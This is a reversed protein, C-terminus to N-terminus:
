FAVGARAAEVTSAPDLPAPPAGDLVRYLDWDALVIKLYARTERYPISEVWADLPMGSRARAWEAAPAPGANYAALAVAPDGFRAFLLSLYHAGFTLNVEPDGLRGGLAPTVGLVTALREATAPRLQLLGEAGAGSRVWPRFSSERRMVALLFAPDVGFARARDPLIDAYPRPHSWRLTRRTRALHDRAIRFPLEADGAFAALQAVAAAAPRVRASRALDSLEALADPQLGLGLLEVAVALRAAAVPDQVDPIPKPDLPPARPAPAGTADLRARALLAYWGDGGLQVASLYLRRRTSADKALRGRWYAAADAYSTRQLRAMSRAAADLRGLRFRAWAAFWLADDARRSRPHMRAFRDLADAGRAFEGADYFLWAALYAAEDGLDRQRWEPLGPVPARLAAVEEYLRSADATRGARAASRARVLLAGRRVSEDRSATLPAAVADADAHRGLAALAGARLVAARGPDGPPEADLAAGIAALSLEPWGTALLREARALEEGGTGPPVPGGSRRWADLADGAARGEPREPAEIWLARYTAEARADDGLARLGRALALRAAADDPTERLLRELAPVAEAALGAGLLAQAEALRARRAVALDGAATVDAYLRAARPLDGAAVLAAARASSLHARAPTTAGGLAAELADAAEAPTGQAALALGLAASARSAAQGHPRAALARRAASEAKRADGRAQTQAAEGIGSLWDCLPEQSAARASAVSLLFAAAAIARAYGAVGGHTERRARTEIEGLPTPSKVSRAV